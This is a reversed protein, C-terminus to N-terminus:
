RAKKACVPCVWRWEGENNKSAVRKMTLADFVGTCEECIWHKWRVRQGTDELIIWEYPSDPTCSDICADCVDLEQMADAETVVTMRTLVGTRKWGCNGCIQKHM